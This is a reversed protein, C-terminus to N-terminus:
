KPSRPRRGARHQSLLTLFAVEASRDPGGFRECFDQIGGHWIVAGDELVLINRALTHVDEMVHSSVLAVRGDPVAAVLDRMAARQEPDLGTTPEDLLLFGPEGVMAQALSLRRLMGGSLTHVRHRARASLGVAELAAGALAKSERRGVGRMWAAYTVSTQVRLERPLSYEQPLYGVQRLGAARGHGYIDSGSVHVRGVAPRLAGALHRMLTSKGAGNVGVLATVGDTLQLREVELTWSRGRYTSRLGSVRVEMVDEEGSLLNFTQYPEPREISSHSRSLRRYDM